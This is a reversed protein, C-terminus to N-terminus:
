RGDGRVSILRLDRRANERAARQVERLRAYAEVRDRAFFKRSYGSESRVVRPRLHFDHDGRTVSSIHLGLRQAVERSTMESERNHSSAHPVHLTHVLIHGTDLGPSILQNHSM